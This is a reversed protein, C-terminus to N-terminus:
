KQNSLFSSIQKTQVQQTQTIFLHIQQGRHKNATDQNDKAIANVTLQEFAELTHMTFYPAHTLWGCWSPHTVCKHQKTGHFTVNNQAEKQSIFSLRPTPSAHSQQQTNQVAQGVTYTNSWSCAAATNRVYILYTWGLSLDWIFVLLLFLKIQHHSVTWYLSQWLLPM